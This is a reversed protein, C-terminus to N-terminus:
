QTEGTPAGAQASGFDGYKGYSDVVGDKIRVFYLGKLQHPEGALSFGGEGMKYILYEVGATARTSQPQGLTQLVQAKTMGLSLRNLNQSSTACGILILCTLGLVVCAKM